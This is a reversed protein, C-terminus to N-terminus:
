TFSFVTDMGNPSTVSCWCRKGDYRNQAVHKPSADYFARHPVFCIHFVEITPKIDGIYRQTFNHQREVCIDNLLPKVPYEKLLRKLQVFYTM